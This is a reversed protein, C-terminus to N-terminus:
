TFSFGYVSDNVITLGRGSGQKFEIENMSEDTESIDSENIRFQKLLHQKKYDMKRSLKSKKTCQGMKRLVSEKLRKAIKQVCAGALYRNKGKSASSLETDVVSADIRESQKDTIDKAKKNVENDMLWFVLKSSLKNQHKNVTEVQFLRLISTMHLDSVIFSNLKSYANTWHQSTQLDKSVIDMLNYYLFNIHNQFRQSAFFAVPLDSLFSASKNETCFEVIDWPSQLMPLDEHENDFLDQYCYDHTADDDQDSLHAGDASPGPVSPGPVPHCESLSVSTIKCCLVDPQFDSFDNKYFEYVVEPHKRNAAVNNFNVIRLGQSNTARGVAVGMQGAAFFSFCDIDVYELTQGQARHVTLAYALIVPLQVRCAINRHQRNDYIDFRVASVPVLKGSFNIVVNDKSLEHVTGQMGNYLGHGLNRVLIVKAGKKLMLTKPVASNRLM